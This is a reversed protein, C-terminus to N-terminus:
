IARRLPVARLPMSRTIGPVTSVRLSWDFDTLHAKSILASQEALASRVEAQRAIVAEAVAAGVAAPLKSEATLAAAVADKTQLEAGGVQQLVFAKVVGVLSHINIPHSEIVASYLSVYDPPRGCLDDIACHVFKQM